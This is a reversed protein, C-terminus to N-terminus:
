VVIIGTPVDQKAPQYYLIYPRSQTLGNIVKRGSCSEYCRRARYFSAVLSSTELYTGVQNRYTRWGFHIIGQVVPDDM